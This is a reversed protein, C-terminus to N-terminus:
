ADPKIGILEVRRNLSRGDESDNSGVPANAGKSRVKIAGDSVDFRDKLIRYIANARKLALAQNLEDDGISDTHGELALQNDGKSHIRTAMEKIVSLSDSRLDASNNDFYVRLVKLTNIAPKEKEMVIYHGDSKQPSTGDYTIDLALFAQDSRDPKHLIMFVHRQEEADNAALMSYNHRHLNFIDFHKSYVKLRDPHRIFERPTYFGCDGDIGQCNILTKDESIQLEEKFDEYLLQMAEPQGSFFHMENKGSIAERPWGVPNNRSKIAVPFDFEISSNSYSIVHNDLKTYASPADAGSASFTAFLVPIILLSSIRSSM